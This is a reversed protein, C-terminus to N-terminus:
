ASNKVGSARDPRRRERLGMGGIARRRRVAYVYRRTVGVEAAIDVNSAGPMAELAALIRREAHNRVGRKPYSEPRPGRKAPTHTVRLEAASLELLAADILAITEPSVSPRAADTRFYRRVTAYHLGTELAVQMLLRDTVRKPM